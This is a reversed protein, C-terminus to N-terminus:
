RFENNSLAMNTESDNRLIEIGIRPELNHQRSLRTRYPLKPGTVICSRDALTSFVSIFDVVIEQYVPLEKQV